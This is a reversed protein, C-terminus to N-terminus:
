SDPDSEAKSWWRRVFAEYQEPTDIGQSHCERIAVGIRYGHELVRLQELKETLELPTSPLTAYTRLFGARYAYIGVHKLPRAAGGDDAVGLGADRDHPVLARSFYLALGTCGVVAKVINPNAPDEDPGLPSAVTGVEAGTGVLADAAAQITEPDIEPEDGQVNVILSEDPLGLRAAAEALRSTGNPHEGTLVTEIDFSRVVAAVQESDTAVVVRAIGQVRAARTAVHWILPRGTKSALVKGPFRTSGLRAPILVVAGAGSGM